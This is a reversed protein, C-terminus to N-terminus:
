LIICCDRCQKKPVIAIDVMEHYGDVKVNNHHHEIHQGQLFHKVEEKREEFLHCAKEELTKRYESSANDLSLSKIPIDLRLFSGEPMLAKTSEWMVENPADMIIDVIGHYLWRPLGWHEADEGKISEDAEVGTGLSLIRINDNPWKEKALRLAILAVNNAALGGDMYWKDKIKVCPFYTPAATIADLLTCTDIDKDEDKWSCFLKANLPNLQYAILAVPICMDGFKKVKVYESIVQRKGEGTYRPQPQIPFLEDWCSKDFIRNVNNKSFLSVLTEKTKYCHDQGIASAILGGVSAGVVMDFLDCPNKEMMKAIKTLVMSPVLGRIGGGDIALVWRTQSNEPLRISM